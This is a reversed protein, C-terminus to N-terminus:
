GSRNVLTRGNSRSVNRHDVYVFPMTLSISPMFASAVSGAPCNLNRISCISLILCPSAILEHQLQTFRWLLHMNSLLISKNCHLQQMGSLCQMGTMHLSVALHGLLNEKATMSAHALQHGLNVVLGTSAIRLHCLRQRLITLFSWLCPETTNSPCKLRGQMM